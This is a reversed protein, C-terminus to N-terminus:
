MKRTSASWLYAKPNLSCQNKRTTRNIMWPSELMMHHTGLTTTGWYSSPKYPFIWRYISSKRTGGNTSVEMILFILVYAMGMGKGQWKWIHRKKPTKNREEVGSVRSSGTASLPKAASVAFPSTVRIQLKSPRLMAATLELPILVFVPSAINFM